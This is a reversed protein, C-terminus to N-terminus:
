LRCQDISDYSHIEVSSYISYGWCRTLHVSNFPWVLAGKIVTWQFCLDWIWVEDMGSATFYIGIQNAYDQLEKYQDHSFELFEKHEGYTKGWSNKSTYPRALASKNFKYSLESKQFKACDAGADQLYSLFTSSRSYSLGFYKAFISKFLPLSWKVFWIDTQIQGSKTRLM